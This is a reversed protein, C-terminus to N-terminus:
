NPRVMAQEFTAGIKKFEPMMEDMMGALSGMAIMMGPVRRKVEDPLRRADSGALDGLTANQPIRRAEDHGGMADMARALPAAKMSLMMGMMAGMADAVAAQRRPDELQRIMEGADTASATTNANARDRAAAPGPLLALMTLPVVAFLMSRDFM